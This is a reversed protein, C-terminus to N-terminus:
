SIWTLNKYIFYGNIYFFIYLSIESVWYSKVDKNKYRGPIM